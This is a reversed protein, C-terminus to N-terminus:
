GKSSCGTIRASSGAPRFTTAVATTSASPAVSPSRIRAAISVKRRVGSSSSRAWASLSRPVLPSPMPELEHTTEPAWVVVPRGSSALSGCRPAAIGDTHVCTWSRQAVTVSAHGNSTAPNLKEPSGPTTMPWLWCMAQPKVFRVM